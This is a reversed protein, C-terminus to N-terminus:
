EMGKSERGRGSERGGRRNSGEEIERESAHVCVRVCMCLCWIVNVGDRGRERQGEGGREREGDRGRDREGEGREGMSVSGINTM